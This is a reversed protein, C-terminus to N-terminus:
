TLRIDPENGSREDHGMCMYMYIKKSAQVRVSSSGSSIQQLSARSHQYNATSNRCRPRLSISDPTFVSGIDTNAKRVAPM